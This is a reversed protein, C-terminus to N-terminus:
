SNIFNHAQSTIWHYVTPEDSEVVLLQGTSRDNSTCPSITTSMASFGVGTQDCLDTLFQALYSCVLFPQVNHCTCVINSWAQAEHCFTMIMSLSISLIHAALCPLSRLPLTPRDLFTMIQDYRTFRKLNPVFLGIKTKTILLMFYSYQTNFCTSNAQPTVRKVKL